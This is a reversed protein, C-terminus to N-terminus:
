NMIQTVASVAFSFKRNPITGADTYPSALLDPNQHEQPLNRPGMISAGRDGRIPELGDDNRKSFQVSSAM